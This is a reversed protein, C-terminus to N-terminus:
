RRDGTGAPLLLTFEEILGHKDIPQGDENRELYFAAGKGTIGHFTASESGDTSDSESGSPAVSPSTRDPFAATQPTASAPQGLNSASGVIRPNPYGAHEVGRGSGQAAVYVFLGAAIFPYLKLRWTWKTRSRMM